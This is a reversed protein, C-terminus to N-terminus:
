ASHKLNLTNKEEAYTNQGEHWDTFTKVIRRFRADCRHAYSKKRPEMGSYRGKRPHVKMVAQKLSELSAGTNECYAEMMSVADLAALLSNSAGRTSIADVLVRENIPRGRGLKPAGNELVKLLVDAISLDVAEDHYLQKKKDAEHWGDMRIRAQEIWERAREDAGTAADLTPVDYCGGARLIVIAAWCDLATRIKM